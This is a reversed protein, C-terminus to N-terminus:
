TLPFSDFDIMAKVLGPEEHFDTITLLVHTQLYHDLQQSLPHTSAHAVSRVLSAGEQDLATGQYMIHYDNIATLTGTKDFVIHTLRQIEEIIRTSRLYMNKDALLRMVNGYTFPIALALACPCAIILVSTVTVLAM